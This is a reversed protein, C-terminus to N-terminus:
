TAFSCGGSGSLVAFHFIENQTMSAEFTFFKFVNAASAQLDAWFVDMFPMSLRQFTQKIKNTFLYIVASQLFKRQKKQLFHRQDLKPNLQGYFAYYNIM